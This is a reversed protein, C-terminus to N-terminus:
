THVRPRREFAEILAPNTSGEQTNSGEKPENQWFSTLHDASGYGAAACAEDFAKIAKSRRSLARHEYRDLKDLQDWPLSQRKALGHQEVRMTQAAFEAELWRHETRDLIAQARAVISSRRRAPAAPMLENRPRTHQFTPDQVLRELLDAKARRARLADITAEAVRAAAERVTPTEAAEATIAQAVQAVDPAFEPLAAAPIALGHKLANLRSHSKGGATRPGTSRQANRQNATVKKSLPM